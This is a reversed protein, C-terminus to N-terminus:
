VNITDQTERNIFHKYINQGKSTYWDRVFLRFCLYLLLFVTNYLFTNGPSQFSIPIGVKNFLFLPRKYRHGKVYLTNSITWVTELKKVGTIDHVRELLSKGENSGSLQQSWLDCMIYEKRFWIDNRLGWRVQGILLM